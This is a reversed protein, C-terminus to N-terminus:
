DEELNSPRITMGEPGFSFRVSGEGTGLIFSDSDNMEPHYDLLALLAHGLEEVKIIIDQILEQEQYDIM